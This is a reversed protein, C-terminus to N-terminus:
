LQCATPNSSLAHGVALASPGYPAVPRHFPCPPCAPPSSRNVTGGPNRTSFTARLGFGPSGNESMLRQKSALPRSNTECSRPGTRSQECGSVSPTNALTLDYQGCTLPTCPM